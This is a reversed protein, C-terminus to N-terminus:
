TARRAAALTCAVRGRPRAIIGPHGLEREEPKAIAVGAGAFPDDRAITGLVILDGDAICFVLDQARRLDSLDIRLLLAKSRVDRHPLRMTEVTARLLVSRGSDTRGRGRVRDIRSRQAPKFPKEQEHKQPAVHGVACPAAPKYRHAARCPKM